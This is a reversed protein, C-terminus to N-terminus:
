PNSNHSDTRTPLRLLYLSIGAAVAFLLIKVWLVPVIFLASPPITLWVLTIASVKARRPIGSGKLYDRILPGFHRHEILWTHFRESSRAFCAAALLLLPVTPVLPLFIGIIGFITAALGIILLAWRLVPHRVHRSQPAPPLKKTDHGERPHSM